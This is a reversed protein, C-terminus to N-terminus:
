FPLADEYPHGVRQLLREHPLSGPSVCAEVVDGDADEGVRKADGVNRGAALAGEGARAGDDEQADRVVELVLELLVGLALLM